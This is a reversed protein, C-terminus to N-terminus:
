GRISKEKQPLLYRGTFFAATVPIAIKLTNKIMSNQKSKEDMGMKPQVTPIELIAIKQAMDAVYSAMKQDPQKNSAERLM